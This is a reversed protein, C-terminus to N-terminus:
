VLSRAYHLRKTDLNGLPGNYNACLDVITKYDMERWAADISRSLTGHQEQHQWEAVLRDRRAKMDSYVAPDGLMSEKGCEALLSALWAIQGELGGSPTQKSQWDRYKELQILDGAEFSYGGAVDDIGRRGFSMEPAYAPPGYMVNVYISPSEYRLIVSNTNPRVISKVFGFNHELFSFSDSAGAEFNASLNQTAMM